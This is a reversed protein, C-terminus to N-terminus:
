YGICTYHNSLLVYCHCLLSHHYSGIQLPASMSKSMNKNTLIVTDKIEQEQAESSGCRRHHLLKGPVFSPLLAWVDLGPMMHFLSFTVHTLM